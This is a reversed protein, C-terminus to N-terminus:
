ALELTLLTSRNRNNPKCERVIYSETGIALTKNRHDVGDIGDLEFIPKDGYIGNFAMASDDLFKGVVAVGDLTAADSLKAMVAANTRQQLTAFASM